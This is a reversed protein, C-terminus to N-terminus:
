TTVGESHMPTTPEPIPLSNFINKTTIPRRKLGGTKGPTADDLEMRKLVIERRSFREELRQLAQGLRQNITPDRLFRVDPLTRAGQVGTSAWGANADAQLASSRRANVIKLVARETRRGSAVPGRMMRFYPMFVKRYPFDLVDGLGHLGFEACMAAKLTTEIRVSWQREPLAVGNDRKKCYVKVQVPQDNRFGYYLSENPNPTRHNFPRLKGIEPVYGATKARRMRPAGYPHLRRAVQAFCDELLRLRGAPSCPAAPVLDLTVELGLIGAHPFAAALLPIDHADLDHITLERYHAAVGWAPRGLITPPLKQWGPTSIRIFDISSRVEIQSLCHSLSPSSM